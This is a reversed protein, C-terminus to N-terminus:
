HRPGAIIGQVMEPPTGFTPPCEAADVIGLRGSTGAGVYFLRGGQRFAHVVIRVAEAIYPIERRVAIPVLHDETNIINLIEEVPAVDIHMSHPNRQETTLSKLQHFLKPESM